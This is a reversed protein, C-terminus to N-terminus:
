YIDIVTTYPPLLPECFSTLYDNHGTLSLSDMSTNSSSLVIATSSFVWSGEGDLVCVCVSVCVGNHVKESHQM